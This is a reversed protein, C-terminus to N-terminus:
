NILLFGTTSASLSTSIKGTLYCYGKVLPFDSRLNKLAFYLNDSNIESFVIDPAVPIIDNDIRINGASDMTQTQIFVDKHPDAEFIYIIHHYSNVSNDAASLTVYTLNNKDNGYGFVISERLERFSDVKETLFTDIYDIGDMDTVYNAANYSPYFAVTFPNFDLSSISDKANYVYLIKDCVTDKVLDMTKSVSKGSYDALTFELKVVGDEFSKFDYEFSGSLNKTGTLNLVCNSSSNTKDFVASQKGEGYTDRILQEKIELYEVGSQSDEAEFYVWIKNVHHNQINEAVKDSDGGYNAKAAYHTFEDFTILNTGNIADQQTRAINLIKLEPLTSDKEGNIRYTFTYENQAFSANEGEIADKLGALLVTVRIDKSEENNILYNGDAFPIILTKGEEELYPTKFYPKKGNQNDLLDQLGSTISINKIRGNQDVFDELRVPKNFYIKISTDQPYSTNDQPPYVSTIKPILICDPVILIDDAPKLLKVVVKWTNQKELLPTTTIQVYDARSQSNDKSSLAKMGNFIYDQLDVTYQLEVTYGVRCEKEGSSLFYGVGEPASVYITCKAANAYAIKDDLEKKVDAGKLFNDCSSLTALLLINAFLHQFLNLMVNKKM